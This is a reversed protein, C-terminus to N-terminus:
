SPVTAGHKRLLRRERGGTLVVAAEQVPAWWSPLDGFPKSGIAQLQFRSGDGAEGAPVVAEERVPAWWSTAGRVVKSGIAQLQLRNDDGAKGLEEVEERPPAKSGVGGQDAAPAWLPSPAAGYSFLTANRAFPRHPHWLARFELSMKQVKQNPIRMPLWVYCATKLRGLGTENAGCRVWNDGMYLLYPNQTDGAQRNKWVPNYQIVFTPQSDFSTESGTPNGINVWETGDLTTKTSRWAVLPNPEWSTLHSTLLYYTGNPLRFMAMGECTDLRSIIAGETWLYDDSLRTIGVFQHACDRILYAQGDKDQFLNLDLSPWGNPRFSHHHEFPGEPRDATAVGVHRYVYAAASTNGGPKIKPQDLHFWMVYKGTVSNFLVKPRQIIWPGTVDKHVISNQSLVEGEFHWPGTVDAASYCNVGDTPKSQDGKRTEGYWYWRGGASQLLCGAHAQISNGADDAWHTHSRILERGSGDGAQTGPWCSCLLVVRFVACGFVYARGATPLSM